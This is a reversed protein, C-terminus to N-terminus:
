SHTIVFAITRFLSVEADMIELDAATFKRPDVLSHPRTLYSSASRCLSSLTM